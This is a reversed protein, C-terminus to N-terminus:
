CKARVSHGGCTCVRVNVDNEPVCFGVSKDRIVDIFTGIMSWDDGENPSFIISPMKKGRRDIAASRRFGGSPLSAKDASIQCRISCLLRHMVDASNPEGPKTPASSSSLYSELINKSVVARQSAPLDRPEFGWVHKVFDLPDTGYVVRRRYTQRSSSGSSSGHASSSNLSSAEAHDGTTNPIRPSAPGSFGTKGTKPPAYLM